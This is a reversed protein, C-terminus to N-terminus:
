GRGAEALEPLRIVEWREGGDDMEKLRRGALDDDHWRTQILIISADPGLRTYIDDRSLEWVRDRFVSSNAQSRSKVPDDIIILDGGFGTFGSGTGVAKLRRGSGLALFSKRSERHM